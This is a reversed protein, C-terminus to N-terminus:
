SLGRSTELDAKYPLPSREIAPIRWLHNGSERRAGLKGEHREVTWDM